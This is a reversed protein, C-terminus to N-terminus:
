SRFAKDVGPEVSQTSAFFQGLEPRADVVTGSPGFWKYFPLKTQGKGANAQLIKAGGRIRGESYVKNADERTLTDRGGLSDFKANVFATDYASVDVRAMIRANTLRATLESLVEGTNRAEISADIARLLDAAQSAPVGDREFPVSSVDFFGVVKRAAEAPEVITFQRIQLVPYTPNGQKNKYLVPEGDKDRKMEWRDIQILYTGPKPPAPGIQQEKYSADVQLDDQIDFNDM